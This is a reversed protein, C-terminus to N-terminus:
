LIDLTWSVSEGKGPVANACIYRVLVLSPVPLGKTGTTGWKDCCGLKQFLAAVSALPHVM